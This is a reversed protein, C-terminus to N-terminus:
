GPSSHARGGKLMNFKSPTQTIISVHFEGRFDLQERSVFLTFKQQLRHLCGILRGVVDTVHRPLLLGKAADRDVPQRVVGDALLKAQRRLHGHAHDALDNVGVLQVFLRLPLKAFKASYRIVTADQVEAKGVAGHRDPQKATPLGDREHGARMLQRQKLVLAAFAVQHMALALEVQVRGAVNGVFRWNVRFAPKANIETNRVDGGVAVSCDVAAAGHVVHAVAVAAQAGLQLALARLRRAAAELFQRALLTAEGRVGVVRDALADDGLRFVGSAPNGEFVQTADALPCSNLAVLPRCQMAPRERLQALVDLVLRPQRPHRHDQDIGAIGGPGTRGTTVDVFAVTGRM